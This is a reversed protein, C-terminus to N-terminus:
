SRGLVENAPSRILGWVSLLSTAVALLLILVSPFIWGMATIHLVYSTQQVWWWLIALVVWAAVLGIAVPILNDKFIQWLIACPGAGIAMRIGLEFRRLQMSYSLVGYIGIAALGLAILSLAVALGAALMEQALSVQHGADMSRLASVKYQSNVSAMLENLEIKTLSQNPKFQVMLHPFLASAQPIFMRPLEARNPLSFDRVVGVVEYPQERKYSNLWYFRKHLVNGDPQLQRAFTENVIVETADSLFGDATFHRGAVWQAGLMELFYNDVLTLLAQKQEVFGADPSLYSFWPSITVSSIPFDSTLSASAVKPHTLLLNRIALVNNKQEAPSSDRQTGSNLEVQYIDQTFFGLPKWMHQLSQLLIQASAIVLIGTLMVQVFILLQRVRGSIQLVVGKGSTQLMNNLARYNIQRSVLLAFTLALLLAIFIAFGISPASMTLENLRPLLDGAIQQLLIICAMAVMLSLVISPIVLLLIEALVVNFLHYKQAGLAAKIAMSRQQNAARALILNIINAAAILVLVVASLLLLLVQGQRDGLIAQRYSVLTFRIGEDRGTRRVSEQKYRTDLKATIAQEVNRASQGIKLKGVFYQNIQFYGWARYNRQVTNYDWPLWVQTSRGPNMLQPEIFNQATVGIISFDVEGFRLTKGIVDPDKSFLSQWTDFSIVVVPVNFDLGEDATFNRGLAMSVNALSLYEPTVYSAVVLPADARDRIIGTGFYVLAKQEFFEDNNKYAEIAAPYPYMNALDLKGNEFADGQLLYLREQDSYPLPKMLLQYNLNFMAVLVGFTMGLTLVITIVYAKTKRLSSFATKFDNIDFM